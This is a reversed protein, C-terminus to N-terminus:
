TVCKAYKIEELAVFNHCLFKFKLGFSMKSVPSLVHTNELHWAAECNIVDTFRQFNCIYNFVDLSVLLILIYTYVIYKRFFPFLDRGLNSM